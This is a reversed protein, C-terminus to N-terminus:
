EKKGADKQQQMLLALTEPADEWDMFVEIMKLGGDRTMKEDNLVRELDGWTRVTGTFATYEDSGAGSGDGAGAGMFSPAQLYNWNAIDNYKEKYGHLCREITYGANNILFVTVNLKDRIITSLEQVTMQFSGDGILLITRFAHRIPKQNPMGLPPRERQAIAAGLAAPLMYGISLWTSPKFLQTQPPLLFDRSGYGATGTEALIVDGPRFFPSLTRYFHEQTLLGDPSQQLQSIPAQTHTSVPKLKSHDLKDLLTSLFHKAPLDRYTRDRTKVATSTFLISITPDPISTTAYSNTTSFHPGFCLILDRSEVFEKDERTAASGKWIGYVNPWTEDVLSKGFVSTFTPWQSSKIFTQVEDLIGYARSEGDVLIMPRETAYLRDLVYALAAAEDNSSIPLPLEIKSKLNEASVPASVMDAPLQIYVPRSHILAQQITSDIMSPATRPDLLNAQAVTVHAHMQAFRGYEGDNFTHHINTRSQQLHRAPTGVIHVIPALEAYAGAIANIASLEGVGFTTILAGLGKLRSYADAAYGANLENCNGVWHLGQPEVYDLLSLNYDGPVGFISGVDLQRLRTFLYDALQITSAM